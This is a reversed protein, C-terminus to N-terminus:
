WTSARQAALDNNADERRSQDPVLSFIRLRRVSEIERGIVPGNVITVKQLANSYYVILMSM